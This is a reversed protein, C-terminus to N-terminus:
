GFPTTEPAQACFFSKGVVANVRKAANDVPLIDRHRQSGAHRVQRGNVGCIEYSRACPLRLGPDRGPLDASAPLHDERPAEVRGCLIHHDGPGRIGREISRISQGRELRRAAAGPRTRVRAAAHGRSERASRRGRHAVALRANRSLRLGSPVRKPSSPARGTAPGRATQAIPPLKTMMLLYAFDDQVSGQRRRPGQPLVGKGHHGALLVPRSPRRKLGHSFALPCDHGPATADARPCRSIERCFSSM